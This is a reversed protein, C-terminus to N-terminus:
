AQSNCASAQHQGLRVQSLKTLLRKILKKIKLSELRETIEDISLFDRSDHMYEKGPIDLPMYNQGTGIVFKKATYTEGGVEVTNKDKFVADGRIVDIDFKEFIGAMADPLAGIVKKKYQMLSKWDLEPEQKLGIGKYRNMAGKLEFPSDLLIKADCGYNTCTGGM